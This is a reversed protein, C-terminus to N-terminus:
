PFRCQPRNDVNPEYCARTYYLVYLVNIFILHGKYCRTLQLPRRKTSIRKTRNTSKQTAESKNLPQQPFPPFGFPLDSFLPNRLLSKLSIIAPAQIVALRSYRKPWAGVRSSQDEPNTSRDSEKARAQRYRRPRPCPYRAKRNMLRIATYASPSNAVFEHPLEWRYACTARTASTPYSSHLSPFTPSSYWRRRKLPKRRRAAM